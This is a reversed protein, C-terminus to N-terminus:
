QPAMKWQSSLFNDFQTSCCLLDILAVIKKMWFLGRCLEGQFNWEKKQVRGKCFYLYFQVFIEFVYIKPIDRQKKFFTFYPNEFLKASVEGIQFDHLFYETGVQPLEQYFTFKFFWYLCM